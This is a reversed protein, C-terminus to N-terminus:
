VGYGYGEEEPAPSEREVQPDPGAEHDPNEAAARRPTPQDGADVDPDNMVTGM